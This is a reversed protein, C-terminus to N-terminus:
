HNIIYNRKKKKTRNARAITLSTTLATLFKKIWKLFINLPDVMFNKNYSFKLNQHRKSEIGFTFINM